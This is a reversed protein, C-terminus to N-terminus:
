AAVLRMSPTAPGSALHAILRTRLENALTVLSPLDTATPSAVANTTDDAYHVTAQVRHANFDAKLENARALATPLDTATPATTVNTADAAAHALADRRHFTYVGYAQNVLAIATPLDSSAPLTVTRESQDLHFAAGAGVMQKLSNHSQCLLDCLPDTNRVIIAM